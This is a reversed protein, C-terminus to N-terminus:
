VRLIQFPWAQSLSQEVEEIEGKCLYIIIRVQVEASAVNSLMTPWSIAWLGPMPYGQYIAFNFTFISHDYIFQIELFLVSWWATMKPMKIAKMNKFAIIELSCQRRTCM